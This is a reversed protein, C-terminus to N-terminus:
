ANRHSRIISIAHYPLAPDLDIPVQKEGALALLHAVREDAADRVVVREPVRRLLVRTAEGIGPKILNEDIIGYRKHTAAMCARSIAVREAPSSEDPPPEGERKHLDMAADVVDDVFWRSLDHASFQEFHVCGHYDGPYIAENLISRSVLGSITANLISSAILYDEGSAARAASGALDALVNLGSDIRLRYQTNFAAIAGSLERSIVGKGTWGDIFAISDPPHGRALIERLAVTDIGRDRIISVSYHAPHIGHLRSVLHRVIAGVPTGARALSVLTLGSGYHELLLRTLRLCDRALRERNAAHARRFLAMYHASPLREPSLMESYHRQGSQILAEKHASDEIFAIGIPKLLFEVDDPRYSGHFRM